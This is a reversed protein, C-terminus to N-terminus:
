RPEFVKSLTPWHLCISFPSHDEGKKGRFASPSWHSTMWNQLCLTFQNPDFAALMPTLGRRIASQLWQVQLLPWLILLSSPFFCALSVDLPWCVCAYWSGCVHGVNDPPWSIVFLRSECRPAFLSLRVTFSCLRSRRSSQLRFIGKIFKSISLM